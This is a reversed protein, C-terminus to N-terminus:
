LFPELAELYVQLVDPQRALSAKANDALAQRRQPDEMLQRIAQWCAEMDEVQLVGDGLMDIDARINSDSPGTIIACGLSAPEILNHGGTQDFSGGMIVVDAYGMLAPMEGLTDALYVETDASVPQRESRVAFGIGLARLEDQIEESRDPHRPAIVLLGEGARGARAEVFAKEEGAHSSALLLYDREVLRAPLEAGVRRTKLNGAIETREPPAGLRLLADRDDAGRALLKSFCNLTRGLLAGVYRGSDLSKASLRANVLVLEIGRRRAQTLLEPWLETEMVIGLRIRHRAYFRRCYHPNDIPIVGARLREGFADRIARHGTATFSTFLIAEGRELLAQVLPSIAHVEGVSAAHVWIRPREDAAVRARRMELYTDVGHQRGHRLAHAIWFLWLPLSLLRYGWGPSPSKM